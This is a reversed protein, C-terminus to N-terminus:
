SEVEIKFTNEGGATVTFTWPVSIPPVGKHEGELPPIVSVSYEGAPAGPAKERDVITQLTFTGDPQILGAVRVEPHEKSLFQVSGGKMPQGGKYVISGGAPFTKPMKSGKCGALFVVAPVLVLLSARLLGSM